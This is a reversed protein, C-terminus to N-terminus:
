AFYLGGFTLVPGLFHPSMEMRSICSHLCNIMSIPPCRKFLFCNDDPVLGDFWLGRSDLKKEPRGDIYIGSMKGCCKGLKRM